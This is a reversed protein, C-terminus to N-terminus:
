PVTNIHAYKTLQHGENAFARVTRINSLSENSYALAEASVQQTQKSLSRCMRAYLTGILTLAPVTVLMM